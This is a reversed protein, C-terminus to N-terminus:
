CLWYYFALHDTQSCMSSGWFREWMRGAYRFLKQM